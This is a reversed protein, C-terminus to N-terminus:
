KNCYFNHTHSSYRAAEKIKNSYKMTNFDGQHNYLYIEIYKVTIM